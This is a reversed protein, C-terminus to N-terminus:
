QLAPINDRVPYIVFGIRTIEEHRKQKEKAELSALFERATGSYWYILKM